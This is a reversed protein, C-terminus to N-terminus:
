GDLHQRRRNFISGKEEMFGQELLKKSVAGWDADEKAAEEASRALRAKDSRPLTNVLHLNQMAVDRASKNEKIMPILVGDLIRRILQHQNTLRLDACLRLLTRRYDDNTAKPYLDVLLQVEAALDGEHFRAADLFEDDPASDPFDALSFSILVTRQSPTLEAARSRLGQIVPEPTNGVAYRKLTEWMETTEPQLSGLWSGMAEALAQRASEDLPTDPNTDLEQVAIFESGDIVLDVDKSTSRVTQLLKVRALCRQAPGLSPAAALAAFLREPEDGMGGSALQPVTDLLCSAFIIRASEDPPPTAALVIASEMFTSRWQQDILGAEEFTLARRISLAWASVGTADLSPIAASANVAEITRTASWDMARALPAAASAFTELDPLSSEEVAKPDTWAKYTAEDLLDNARSSQKLVNGDIAAMWVHRLDLSRVGSRILLLESLAPTAARGFSPLEAEVMDRSERADISLAMLLLDEILATRGAENAAQILSQIHDLAHESASIEVTDPEAPAPTPTAPAPQAAAAATAADAKAKREAEDKQIIELLYPRAAAIVVNVKDDSWKLVSDTASSWEHDALLSAVVNGVRDIHEESFENARSAVFSGTADDTIVSDDALARGVLENGVPRRTALGLCIAGVLDDPPLRDGEFAFNAADALEDVIESIDLESLAGVAGLLSSLSNDGEVGPLAEQVHM